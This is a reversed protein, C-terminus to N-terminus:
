QGLPKYSLSKIQLQWPASTTDIGKSGAWNGGIALDLIVYYPQDYPWDLPNSSTKQRSAYPVGDITFTISTPTKIVGYEHFAAASDPVYAPTYTPAQQVENYSHIAPINQGPISGIAEAFDIEGNLAWAFPDSNAIGYSSPSYKNDAPLLWAAPWTGDGAPLKMDVELTGYTFDFKGKTDVRASSYAKGDINDPKAEIVLTGNSVRVNSTRSTYAQAENNYDAITTGTTFNWDKNSLPGDAKNAFSYDWATAGHQAVPLKALQASAATTVPKSAQKIATDHFPALLSGQQLSIPVYIAVSILLSYSLYRATNTLKNM